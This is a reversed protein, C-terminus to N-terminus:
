NPSVLDPNIFRVTTPNIGLYNVLWRNSGKSQIIYPDFFSLVMKTAEDGRATGTNLEPQSRDMDSVAHICNAAGKGRLRGDLLLYQMKGSSLKEAQAVAMDYLDKKIPHPGWMSVRANNTVAWHITQAISLNKGEVPDRRLPEIQLTAPMWSITTTDIEPQAPDGSVKAFLAFTHSKQPVNPEAQAAFMILYYRDEAQAAGSIGVAAIVAIVITRLTSMIPVRQM